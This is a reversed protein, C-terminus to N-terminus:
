RPEYQEGLGIADASRRMRDSNHAKFIYFMAAFCAIVAATFMMYELFSQAKSKRFM